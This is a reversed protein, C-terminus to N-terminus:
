ADAAADERDAARSQQATRTGIIVPQFFRGDLRRVDEFGAKSMLDLLKSIEIIFM